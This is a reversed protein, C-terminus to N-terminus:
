KRAIVFLGQTAFMNMGGVWAPFPWVRGNPLFARCELLRADLDEVLTLFDRITCLHINPTEYWEYPLAGGRPMRGRWLLQWRYTLLAFNPITVIVERGTHLLTDLVRRPAQTAQLTKSLIVHDYIGSPYVGLETDANGQIVSLGHTVCANVKAQDLELGRCSCGKAKLRRLLTGDGCGVDLVRSGSPVRDVIFDFDSAPRSM